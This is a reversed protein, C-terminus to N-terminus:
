HGQGRRPCGDGVDALQNGRSTGHGAPIHGAEEESGGADRGLNIRDDNEGGHHINDRRRIGLWLAHVTAIALEIMLLSMVPKVPDVGVPRVAALGIALLGIALLRLASQRHVKRWIQEDSAFIPLAIGNFWAPRSKPLQNARILLLVGIVAAYGAKHDVAYGAAAAFGMVEIALILILSGIWSTAFVGGARIINRRWRKVRALQAHIFYLVLAYVAYFSAASSTTLVRGGEEPRRSGLQILTDDGLILISALAVILIAACVFRAILRTQRFVM